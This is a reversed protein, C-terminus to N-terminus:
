VTAMIRFKLSIAQDTEMLVITVSNAGAEVANQTLDSFLDCLTYHM